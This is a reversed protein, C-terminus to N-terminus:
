PQKEPQVYVLRLGDCFECPPLDLSAPEWDPHAELIAAVKPGCEPCIDLAENPAFVATYPVLESASQELPRKRLCNRCTVADWDYAVQQGQQAGCAFAGRVGADTLPYHIAYVRASSAAPM